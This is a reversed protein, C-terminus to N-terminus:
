TELCSVLIYRYTYSYMSLSVGVCLGVVECAFQGTAPNYTGAPCQICVLGGPIRVACSVESLILLVSKTENVDGTEDPTM